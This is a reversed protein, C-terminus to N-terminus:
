KNLLTVAHEVSRRQFCHDGRLPNSGRRSFFHRSHHKPFRDCADGRVDSRLFQIGNMSDLVVLYGLVCGIPVHRRELLHDLLEVRAQHYQAMGILNAVESWFQRRRESLGKDGVAHAEANFSTVDYERPLDKLALDVGIDPYHARRRNERRKM